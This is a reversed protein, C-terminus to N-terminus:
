DKMLLDYHCQHFEGLVQSQWSALTSKQSCPYWCFSVHYSPVAHLGFTSCSLLQYASLLSADFALVTASSSWETAVITLKIVKSNHVDGELCQEFAQM